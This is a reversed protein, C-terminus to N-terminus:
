FSIDSDEEDSLEPPAEAKPKREESKALYLILDPDKDDRKYKNRFLLLRTGYGLKGSYFVSDDKGEEKWLAALKIMPTKNNETM